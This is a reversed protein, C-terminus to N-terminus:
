KARYPNSYDSARERAQSDSDRSLLCDFRCRNCRSLAIFNDHREESPKHMVGIWKQAALDDPTLRKVCQHCVCAPGCRPKIAARSGVLAGITCM